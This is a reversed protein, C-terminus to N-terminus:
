PQKIQSPVDETRSKAAPRPLAELNEPRTAEVHGLENEALTKDRKPGETLAEPSLDTMQPRKL